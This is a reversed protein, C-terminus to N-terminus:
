SHLSYSVPKGPQRHEKCFKSVASEFTVGPDLVNVIFAKLDGAEWKENSITFLMRLREDVKPPLLTPECWAVSKENLSSKVIVFGRLHEILNEGRLFAPIRSKWRDEFEALSVWHLEKAPDGFHFPPGSQMSELTYSALYRLCNPTSWETGCTLIVRLADMLIKPFISPTFYEEVLAWNVSSSAIQGNLFMMVADVGQRVVSPDFLRVYNRFIVAGQQALNKKVEFFSSEAITALELLSIRKACAAVAGSEVEDLTLFDEKLLSHVVFTRAFSRSVEFMRSQREVLVSSGDRERKRSVLLSNTYEVKRVCFTDRNSLLLLQGACDTLLRCSEDVVFDSPIEVIRFMDRQDYEPELFVDSQAM